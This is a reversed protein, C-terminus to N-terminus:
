KLDEGSAGKTGSSKKGLLVELVGRLSTLMTLKTAFEQVSLSVSQAADAITNIKKLLRVVQVGAVIGVVLFVALATSLFVVLIQEATNM